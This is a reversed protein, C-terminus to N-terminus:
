RLGLFSSALSLCWLTLAVALVPRAFRELTRQLAGGILRQAVESSWDPRPELLLWVETRRYPQRPARLAKLRLIAWMLLTLAAGSKLALLPYGALGVVVLCIALAGYGVGRAVSEIAAQEVDRM